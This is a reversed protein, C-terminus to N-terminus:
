FTYVLGTKVYVVSKAEQVGAGSKDVLNHPVECAPTTTWEFKGKTVTIPMELATSLLNFQESQKKNTQTVPVSNRSKGKPQGYVAYNKLFSFYFNQTGGTVSLSPEITVSPEHDDETLTILKSLGAYVIIDNGETGSMFEGGIYPTIIKNDNGLYIEVSTKIPAVILNSSDSIFNKTLSISGNWNNKSFEYGPEIAVGDFGKNYKSL